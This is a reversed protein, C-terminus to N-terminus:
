KGYEAFQEKTGYFVDMDIHEGPKGYGELVGTISYQWFTWDRGITSRPNKQTSCIWLDCDDFKNEIYLAYSRDNAYIVPRKGYYNEIEKIFVSLQEYVGESDPPNSEYDSYFEVDVMPPLMDDNKPVTKIFNEAQTKGSSDYSFFHYAGVRLDTKMANKFNYDFKPDQYGSGETAKIYAFSIDQSALVNWDIKEQYASVDVGKVPYEEGKMSEPYVPDPNSPEPLQVETNQQEDGNLRNKIYLGEGICVALLILIIIVLIATVKSNNKRQNRIVTM